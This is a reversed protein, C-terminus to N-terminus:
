DDKYKHAQCPQSFDRNAINLLKFHKDRYAEYPESLPLSLLLSNM